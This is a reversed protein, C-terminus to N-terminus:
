IIVDFVLNAVLYTTRSHKKTFVLNAEARGPGCLNAEARGPGCLNAEARGPCCLNVEAREPGCLNAEARGPGCLNAEARGPGCLNAEIQRLRTRCTIISCTRISMLGNVITTSKPVLRTGM